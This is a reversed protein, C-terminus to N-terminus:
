AATDPVLQGGEARLPAGEADRARLEELDQFTQIGLRENLVQRAQFALPEDDEPPMPRRVEGRVDRCPARLLAPLDRRRELFRLRAGHARPPARVFFVPSSRMRADRTRM